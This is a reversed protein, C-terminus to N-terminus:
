PGRRLAGADPAPQPSGARPVRHVPLGDRGRRGIRRSRGPCRALLSRGRWPDKVSRPRLRPRPRLQSRPVARGSRRVPRPRPPLRRRRPTPRRARRPTGPSRAPCPPRVVPSPPDPPRNGGGATGRCPSGRHGGRPIRPPAKVGPHPRTLGGRALPHRCRAPTPRCTPGRSGGRGRDARPATRPRPLRRRRLFRRCTLRHRFTPCGRCCPCGRCSLHRPRRRRSRSRPSNRCQQRGPRPLRSLCEHLGPCGTLSPDRLPVPRTPREPFGPHRFCRRHALCRRRGPRRPPVRGTAPGAPAQGRRQRPRSTVRGPPGPHWRAERRHSVTTSHTAGRRRGPTRPSTM